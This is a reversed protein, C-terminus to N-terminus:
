FPYIGIDPSFPGGKDKKKIQGAVSTMVNLSGDKHILEGYRLKIKTGAPAEVKLKAWGSFKQGM